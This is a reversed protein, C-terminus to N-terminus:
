RRSPFTRCRSTWRPVSKGPLLWWMTSGPAAAPGRVREARLGDRRPTTGGTHVFHHVNSCSPDFRTYFRIYIRDCGPLLRTYLHGGGDFHVSPVDADFSMVESESVDEWRGMMEDLDAEEFNETFVVAPDDEIGIDGPYRAALGYEGDARASWSCLAALAAAIAALGAPLPRRAGSAHLATMVIGGEM